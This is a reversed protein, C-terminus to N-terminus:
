KGAPIQNLTYYFTDHRLPEGEASVADLANIRAVYGARLGALKLRVKLHDESVTAAEVKIESASNEKGDFDIEPSGYTAHYKYGYQAIDYTEPKVAPEPDVPATFVLEFGDPLAHVAAVEFPPKGTFSVRDLSYLQPGVAGSWHAGKGGGVYLKHDPGFSLRNVGSLFGKAFPWVCGQWEGNVKELAVRTVVSLQFDAVLMQGSFPGFGEPVTALGSVSKAMTYPFWVAPPTFSTPKKYDAKPAPWASPYGYFKGKQLHNLKCAGIWNGQNETVFIDQDPGYTGFGFPVRLGSCFPELQRGNASLRFSWGLYPIEWEGNNGGYFMYFNGAADPVPGGIFANYKGTFGWSANVCEYLDAQGDGDLDTLRTLEPKQSVYIHGQHFKLGMPECLGRAFRRYTAAAPNGEPQHVIYVEGAWTCVALDGDPLFDMGTIRADIEKPLPFHEVKYHKDGDLRPFAGKDGSFVPAAFPRAPSVPATLWAMDKPAMVGNLLTDRLGLQERTEAPASRLEIDMQEPHAPISLYLRTEPGTIHNTKGQWNPGKGNKELSLFEYYDAQNTVTLLTVDRDSGGGAAKAGFWLFKGNHAIGACGSIDAQSFVVGPEVDLLLFLDHKSPALSFNRFLLFIGDKMKLAATSEHITVATGDGLGIEYLFTTKDTDQYLPNYKDTETRLGLFRSGAPLANTDTKPLADVSWPFLQPTKWLTTGTYDCIFRDSSGHYPPGFLNLSEGQWVAHLRLLGADFALHIDSQLPVVISRTALDLPARRFPQGAPDHKPIIPATAETKSSAPTKKKEAAWANLAGSLVVTALLLGFGLRAPFVPKMNLYRRQPSSM